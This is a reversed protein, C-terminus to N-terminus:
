EVTSDPQNPLLVAYRAFVAQPNGEPGPCSAIVMQGPNAKVAPDIIVIDGLRYHPANREDFVEFAFSIPSCDFCTHIIKSQVVEKAGRAIEEPSALNVPRGQTAWEHENVPEREFGWALWSRDVRLAEELASLQMLDPSSNGQEWHHIAQRTVGGGLVGLSEALDALSLKMRERAERIRQGRLKKVEPDGEKESGDSPPLKAM